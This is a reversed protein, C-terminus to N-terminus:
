RALEDEEEDRRGPIATPAETRWTAWAARHIDARIDQYKACLGIVSRRMEVFDADDDDPDVGFENDFYEDFERNVGRNPVM